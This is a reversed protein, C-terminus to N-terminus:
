NLTPEEIRDIVLVDVSGTTAVLKLGLQDRLAQEFTPGSIRQTYEQSISPTFVVVFDYKGSLGTQDLVPRDVGSGQQNLANAIQAMTVNRGGISVRGDGPGGGFIGCLPTIGEPLYRVPPTPCPVGNPYPQLKPGTEGSILPVLAFVPMERTEFHVLLKFRDALLAQMTVRKQDKTAHSPGNLRINFRDTVAWGPLQALLSQKQSPALWLKYAFEIYDSVSCNFYEFAFRRRGLGDNSLPGLPGTGFCHPGTGPPPDLQVSATDLGLPAGASKEWEAATSQGRVSRAGPMFVDVSLAVVLVSFLRCIKLTGGGV